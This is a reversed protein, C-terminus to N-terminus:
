AAPRAALRELARELIPDTTPAPQGFEVFPQEVTVSPELGQEHLQEGDPTQYRSTTLWLGAGSPLRVLTQEAARGITHEGILDARKNGQLASAFVEAAGSTGVDVLITTPLTTVSDGANAAIVQPEAGKTEKRTLTGSPVFLAAEKGLLEAVRDQLRNVTPDEGFVDDGVEAAAMAARMGATPRTLTDSRLDVMM